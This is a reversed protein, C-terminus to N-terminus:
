GTQSRRWYLLSGLVIAVAFCTVGFLDLLTFANKPTFQLLTQGEHGNKSFLRGPGAVAVSAIFLLSPVVLWLALWAGRLSRGLFLWTVSGAAIVLLVGPVSLYNKLLGSLKATVDILIALVV